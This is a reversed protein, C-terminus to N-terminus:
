SPVSSVEAPRKEVKASVAATLMENLLKRLEAQNVVGSIVKAIRGDRSVVVTGPLAAGLGFRIM